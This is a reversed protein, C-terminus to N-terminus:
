QKPYLYYLDKVMKLAEQTTDTHVNLVIGTCINQRCKVIYESYWENWTHGSTKLAMPQSDQSTWMSVTLTISEKM